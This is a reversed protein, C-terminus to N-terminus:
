DDERILRLVSRCNYHFPPHQARYTKNSVKVIFDEDLPIAKDKSGYKSDEHKCIDTTRNDMIVDLWKNLKLGSQKAGEMTGMANARNKETRMVTKLRNTYIKDKFVDKIRKKLEQPSDKNLIARQIEQRLNDGVSDAHKQLNEFAYDSLFDVDNLNPVFNIEPKLQNDIKDLGQMYESRLFDSIDTKFPGINMINLFNNIITDLIGKCELKVKM